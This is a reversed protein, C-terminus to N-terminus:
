TSTAMGRRRAASALLYGARELNLCFDDGQVILRNRLAMASSQIYELEFKVSLSTIGLAALHARPSTLCEHWIRSIHLCLKSIVIANSGPRFLTAQIALMAVRIPARIFSPQYSHDMERDHALTSSILISANCVHRWKYLKLVPAM